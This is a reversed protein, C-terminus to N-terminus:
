QSVETVALGDRVERYRDYANSAYVKSAETFSWDVGPAALLDAKRRATEITDCYMVVLGTMVHSIAYGHGNVNTHVILAGVHHLVTVVHDGNVIATDAITPYGYRATTPPIPTDSPTDNNDDPIGDETDEDEPPRCKVCRENNDLERAPYHDNCGECEAYHEHRSCYISDPNRTYWTENCVPCENAYRAACSHCYLDDDVTEFDSDDWSDEGCRSCSMRENMCDECLSDDPECEGGCHECEGHDDDAEITLGTPLTDGGTEHTIHTEFEGRGNGLVLYQKDESLSASTAADIYPMVYVNRGHNPQAIARIRAGTLDGVGYCLGDRRTYGHTELVARLTTDGYVRTYEKKAPWVICRATPSEITGLYALALDPSDGYAQAPHVSSLYRSAKRSMCSSFHGHGNVYIAEIEHPDTTLSFGGTVAKVKDVYEAIQEPTFVEALYQTLYKGPKMVVQRDQYGHEDSPTYAIQGPYKISVHAFHTVVPALKGYYTPADSGCPFWVFLRDPIWPPLTYVGDVFKQYERRKWDRSEDESLKFTIVRKGGDLFSPLIAYADARSTYPFGTEPESGETHVYYPM